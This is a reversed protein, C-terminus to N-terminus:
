FLFAFCRSCSVYKMTVGYQSVAEFGNKWVLTVDCSTTAQLRWSLFASIGNSGVICTKTLRRVMRPAEPLSPFPLAKPSEVHLLHQFCWTSDPAATTVLRVFHAPAASSGHYAILLPLFSIGGAPRRYFSPLHYHLQSVGVGRVRHVSDIACRASTSEISWIPAPTSVVSCAGFFCPFLFRALFSLRSPPISPNSPTPLPCLLSSLSPFTRPAFFFFFSFLSLSLSLSISSHPHISPYLHFCSFPWNLRFPLGISPATRISTKKAKKKETLRNEKEKKEGLLRPDGGSSSGSVSVPLRYTVPVTQM